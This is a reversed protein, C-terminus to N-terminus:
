TVLAPVDSPDILTIKTYLKFLWGFLGMLYAALM